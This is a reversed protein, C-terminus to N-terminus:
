QLCMKMLTDVRAVKRCSYAYKDASNAYCEPPRRVRGIVRSCTIPTFKWRDSRCVSTYIKIVTFPNMRYLQIVIKHHFPMTSNLSRPVIPIQRGRWFPLVSDTGPKRDKPGSGPTLVPRKKLVTGIRTAISNPTAITIETFYSKNRDGDGAVYLWGGEEM